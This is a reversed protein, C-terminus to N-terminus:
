IGSRSGGSTNLNHFTVCMCSINMEQFHKNDSVYYSPTTVVIYVDNRNNLEAGGIGIIM